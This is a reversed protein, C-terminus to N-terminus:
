QLVPVLKLYDLSVSGNGVASSTANAGIAFAPLTGFATKTYAGVSVENYHLYGVNTAPFTGTLSGLAIQQSWGSTVLDNVVRWYVTYKCSYVQPINYRAYFAATLTSGGTGAILLDNFVNGSPDKKVRYFINAARDTRAFSAPNEGQVIIPTIKDQVRFNVSNMVYVVGNSARYTQQIAAKSIPVKVGSVSILTDPLTASNANIGNVALDKLVWFNTISATSDPTSTAFYKLLKSRESTFAADTIVFYTLQADENSLDAVKDFYYNRNVVGTGPKLIPKGTAPDISTVTAKSTDIVTYNQSVLFDRQALGTSSLGTIFEWINQRPVLAKDIVQVVGNSVYIDNRVINADEAQTKTLQVIKGSLMRIRLSTQVDSTLYTQIAIHNAVFLKVKGTDNLIAPDVAQMAVNNPALITYKKSSSILKDYGTKVLLGAFTSLDPTQQIQQLLSTNLQQDAINGRQDWNKKCACIAGATVLFLLIYTIKLNRM